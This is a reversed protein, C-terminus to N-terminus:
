KRGERVRRGIEREEQREGRAFVRVLRRGWFAIARDDCFSIIHESVLDDGEQRQEYAQGSCLLLDHRGRVRRERLRRIRLCRRILLLVQGGIVDDVLAAHLGELVGLEDSGTLLDATVDEGLDLVRGARSDRVRRSEAAHGGDGAYTVASVLGLSESVVVVEAFAVAVGHNGVHLIEHREELGAVGGTRVSDPGNHM